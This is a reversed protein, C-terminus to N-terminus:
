EDLKKSKEDQGRKAEKQIKEKREEIFNSMKETLKQCRQDYERELQRKTDRLKNM